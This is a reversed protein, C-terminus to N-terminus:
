LIHAAITWANAVNREWAKFTRRGEDRESLVLERKKFTHVPCTDEITIIKTSWDLSPSSSGKLNFLANMYGGKRKLSIYWAGMMQEIQRNVVSSISIRDANDKLWVSDVVNTMEVYKSSHMFVRIGLVSRM